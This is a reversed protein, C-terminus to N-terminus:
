IKLGQEAKRILPKQKRLKRVFPITLIFAGILMRYFGSVIGPADALRVFIASFGIVTLGLGLAIYAKVPPNQNQM